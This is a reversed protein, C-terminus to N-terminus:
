LLIPLDFFFKEVITMKQFMQHVKNQYFFGNINKLQKVLVTSPLSEFIKVFVIYTSELPYVTKTRRKKNLMQKPIMSM